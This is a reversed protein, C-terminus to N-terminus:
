KIQKVLNYIGAFVGFFLGGLQGWPKSLYEYSELKEGLWWCILMTVVMQVGVGSYQLWDSSKNKPMSKKSILQRRTAKWGVYEM